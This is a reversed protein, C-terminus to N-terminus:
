LMRASIDKQVQPNAAFAEIMKRVGWYLPQAYVFIQFRGFKLFVDGMPEGGLYDCLAKDNEEFSGRGPYTDCVHLKPFTTKATGRGVVGGSHVV